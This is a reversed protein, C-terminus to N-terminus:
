GPRPNTFSSMFRFPAVGGKVLFERSVFHSLSYHRLLETLAYPWCGGEGVYLYFHIFKRHRNRWIFSVDIAAGRCEVAFPDERQTDARM